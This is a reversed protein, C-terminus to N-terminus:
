PGLQEHVMLDVSRLAPRIVRWDGGRAMVLAPLARANYLSAQAAGYAGVSMIAALEGAQMPFLARDRAFVDASECIPGVVDVPRREAGAAPERVPMIEHHAQYLAPRMLDNMGADVVVFHKAEGTKERIVRTVLLGANAAILRGPEVIIEVGLDGVLRQILEGYADPPPPADAEAYPVGLGGGLDLTEVPAGAARLSAILEKVKTFAAEFPALEKIQSGIHIALGKMAVGELAQGRMYLAEARSWPIGFKDDKRGTSIHAHGGAAVDPNVRLAVPATLGLDLAVANLEELEEESEVNLQKVGAQLAQSLEQATKGVGSFVIRGGPVGAELARTLEGGSVVDAGLGERAMIALVALADNAKVAYAVLADVPSLAQRVVRAHRELTAHSYIYFPTGVEAAIAELSVDEAHLVGNRYAFHHM